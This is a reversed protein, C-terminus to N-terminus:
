NRQNNHMAKETQDVNFRRDDTPVHVAASKNLLVDHERLQAADFAPQYM